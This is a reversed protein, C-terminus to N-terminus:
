FGHVSAGRRAGAYVFDAPALGLVANNYDDRRLLVKNKLTGKAILTVLRDAIYAEAFVGYYGPYQARLLRPLYTKARKELSSGAGASARLRVERVLAQDLALPSHPNAQKDPPPPGM